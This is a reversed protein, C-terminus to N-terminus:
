HSIDIVTRDHLICICSHQQDVKQFVRMTTLMASDEFISSPREQCCCQFLQLRSNSCLLFILNTPKQHEKKSHLAASHKCHIAHRSCPPGSWEMRLLAALGNM